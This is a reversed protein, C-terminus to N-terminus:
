TIGRSILAASMLEGLRELFLTGMGPAFRDKSTSGLALIGVRNPTDLAAMGCSRIGEAGSGFLAQLLADDLDNHCNGRGIGLTDLLAAYAKDSLREDEALGIESEISPKFRVAVMDVDFLNKLTQISISLLDDIDRAQILGISYRHMKEALQENNRATDVLDGVQSELRANQERLVKVQREILSVAGRGSFHPVQLRSLLDPYRQLLDPHEELYDIAAKDSDIIAQKDSSSQESM